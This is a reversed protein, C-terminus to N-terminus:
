TRPKLGKFLFSQLGVMPGVTLLGSSLGYIFGFIATPTTAPATGAQAQSPNVGLALGAIAQILATLIFLPVLLLLYAALIRWVNGKTWKTTEWVLIRREGITAPLSTALRLSLWIAAWVAALMIAAFALGSGGTILQALVNPDSIQEV